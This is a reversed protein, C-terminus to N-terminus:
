SATELAIEEADQATKRPIREVDEGWITEFQGVTIKMEAIRLHIAWVPGDDSLDCDCTEQAEMREPSDTPESELIGHDCEGDRAYLACLAEDYADDFSDSLIAAFEGFEDTAYYLREPNSGYIVPITSM